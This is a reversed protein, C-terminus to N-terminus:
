ITAASSYYINNIILYPKVFSSLLSGKLKYEVILQINGTIMIQVINNVTNIYENLTQELYQEQEKTPLVKVKVTLKM